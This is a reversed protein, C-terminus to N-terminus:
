IPGQEHLGLPCRDLLSHEVRQRLLLVVVWEFPPSPLGRLPQKDVGTAFGVFSDKDDMALLIVVEETLVQPSILLFIPKPDHM